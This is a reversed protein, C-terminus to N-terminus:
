RSNEAVKRRVLREHAPAAPLVGAHLMAAKGIEVFAPAAVQSGYISGVPREVKVYIVYRPHEYPVMGIFSAVYAGPQYYGNEAMQATGTKGATTYGPIQAAPNGTGRVVVARLFAKLRDATQRSFIRREIEPPYVYLTNGQADLIARVIRPRVLIGGNAIACYFRAMALPTVSVGQGFAMTALSSGSWTSPAPVIGPNEGALGVNTPDGFGAEKEMRYFASGGIHLAVEAAGVNLSDAIITELTDGSPSPTLGDVANYIRRGGVELPGISLFRENLSIKRSELAAAATVLKFTSGPEYADQVARDRLDDAPYKWFKNPDFDPANALALVEGSYPDMVIATGSQAHFTKVQARLASEAVFQLYSDLTLELSLGPKAPKVVRQQGFPIPRGFEDTELTVRGSSGKLLDDFSYELGALGNEDIGVFGLVTSASEGALDVRRGTDEEIISVGPLDLARVKEATDHAIKRAIWVFRLSRDRMLASTASDIKGVIPQLQKITIDPDGLDHPVAYVSESPLSRVLVDGARDFISGRRAFVEVTDSRQELAEKAYLPGKVLQVDILRWSLYVALVLLTYFLIKARRPAVRAFTRKHM